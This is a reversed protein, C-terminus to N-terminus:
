ETVRGRHDSAFQGVRCVIEALKDLDVPDSGRCGQLLRVGKLSRLMRRAEDHAVRALSLASDRMLEVLIGGLGVVVTPGFMPDVRAGVFVEVGASVMPQVLVGRIAGAHTVRLANAMIEAHAARVASEDALALRMVGAETKHPI